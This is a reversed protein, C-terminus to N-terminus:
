GGNEGVAGFCLQDGEANGGGCFLLSKFRDFENERIGGVDVFDGEFVVSSRAVAGEGGGLFEAFFDGKASVEIEGGTVMGVSEIDAQLGSGVEKVRDDDGGGGEV